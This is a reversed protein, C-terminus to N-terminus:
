PVEVTSEDLEMDAASQTLTAFLEEAQEVTAIDVMNEGGDFTYSICFDVGEECMAKLEAYQSLMFSFLVAGNEYGTGWMYYKNLGEADAGIVVPMAMDNEPDFMFIVLCIKETESEEAMDYVQWPQGLVQEDCFLGYINEFGKEAFATGCIGMMCVLAMMLAIWKKM